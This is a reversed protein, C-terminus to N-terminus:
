SYQKKILHVDPLNRWREGDEMGYGVFWEEGEFEFGIWDPLFTEIEMKRRILTASRVELAGDDMIRKKLESLTRGSDCIDDVLLVTRGVIPAGEFQIKMSESKEANQGVKYGWTRVPCVEVSTRISRVLDTFFFMGGRLIPIAVIDTHSKQWVDNAWDTIELGIRNVQTAIDKAPYIVQFYDPIM